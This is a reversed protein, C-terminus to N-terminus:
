QMEINLPCNTWDSAIVRLAVFDGGLSLTEIPIREWVVWKIWSGVIVTPRMM